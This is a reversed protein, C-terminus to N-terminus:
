AAVFNFWACFYWRFAVFREKLQCFGAWIEGGPLAIPHIDQGWQLCNVIYWEVRRCTLIIGSLDRPDWFRSHQLMTAYSTALRVQNDSIYHTWRKMLKDIDLPAYIGQLRIWWQNLYHITAQEARLWWRFWHQWIIFWVRLFMNWHFKM